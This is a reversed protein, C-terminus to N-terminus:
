IPQDNIASRFGGRPLERRNKRKVGDVEMPDGLPYFGRYVVSVSM